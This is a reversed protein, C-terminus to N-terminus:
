KNYVGSVEEFKKIIDKNIIFKFTRYVESEVNEEKLNNLLFNRSFQKSIKPKKSM